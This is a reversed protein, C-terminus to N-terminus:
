EDKAPTIFTQAYQNDTMMHANGTALRWIGYAEVLALGSRVENDIVVTYTEM